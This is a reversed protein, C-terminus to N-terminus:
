LISSIYTLAIHFVVIMINLIVLVINRITISKIKNTKNHRNWLSCYSQYLNRLKGKFLLPLFLLIRYIIMGVIYNDFVFYGFLSCCVLYLDLMVVIFFDTIKAKYLKHILLYLLIDFLLYTYLTYFMNTIFFIAFLLVFFLVKKTKINKIEKIYFYFYLIDPLVGILISLLLMIM